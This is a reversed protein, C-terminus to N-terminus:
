RRCAVAAIWTERTPTWRQWQQVGDWLKRAYWDRATGEDKYTPPASSLEWGYYQKFFLFHFCSLAESTVPPKGVDSRFHFTLERGTEEAGRPRQSAALVTCVVEGWVTADKTVRVSVWSGSCDQSWLDPQNRSLAFHALGQFPDMAPQPLFSHWQNRHEGFHLAPLPRM